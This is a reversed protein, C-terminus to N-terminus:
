TSPLSTVAGPQSAWGSQSALNRRTSPVFISGYCSLCRHFLLCAILIIFRLMKTAPKPCIVYVSVGAKILTFLIEYQFPLYFLELRGILLREGQSHYDIIRPNLVSAGAIPM